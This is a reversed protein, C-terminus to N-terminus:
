GLGDFKQYIDIYSVQGNHDPYTLPKV